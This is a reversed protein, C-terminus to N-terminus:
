DQEKEYPYSLWALQIEDAELLWTALPNLQDQEDRFTFLIQIDGSNDRQLMTYVRPWRGTFDVGNEPSFRTALGVFHEPSKQYPATVVENIAEEIRLPYPGYYSSDITKFM